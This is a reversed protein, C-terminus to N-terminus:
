QLLLGSIGTWIRKSFTFLTSISVIHICWYIYAFFTVPLFHFISPLVVIVAYLSMGEVVHKLREVYRYIVVKERKGMLNDAEFHHVTQHFIPVRILDFPM